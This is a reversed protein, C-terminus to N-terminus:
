TDLLPEVQRLALEPDESIVAALQEITHNGLLVELPLLLGQDQALQFVTIARLSNGGLEYFDERVGPETAGLVSAWIDSLLQEVPTRAPVHTVDPRLAPGAAALLSARDLKGNRSLPLEPLVVFTDPVHASPLRALLFARLEDIAPLEGPCCLYGVLHRDAPRDGTLTAAASTILPHAALSAEVAGLEIRQGGIKVQGDRRGLFELAGDSVWRAWDGTRYLRGGHCFPDPVFCLATLGPMNLYGRALQIGGIYLEGPVGVPVPEHHNDLVYARVGATPRGIPVRGRQREAPGVLGTTVSIATETPGYENKLTTHPWIGALRDALDPPLDEGGCTVRRLSAALAPAGPDGILVRVASPVMITLTVKERQMLRALYGQDHEGRPKAFVVRAGAALSSLWESGFMDFGIPSRALTVDAPGCPSIAQISMMRSAIAEHSVMVGKPMGTSGSTYLVYALNAPGATLAPRTDACEAILSDDDMPVLVPRAPASALRRNTILESSSLVVAPSGDELMLGLLSAPYEPDLPLYAGGAKLVAIMAVLARSSRPLCVGVIRDPGVGRSILYRAWKNTIADLEGYTMAESDTVIALSGPAVAAQREILEHVCMRPWSEAGAGSFGRLIREREEGRAIMLESIAADPQSAAGALVQLWGGVLGAADAEDWLEAAFVAQGALSGDFREFLLISLENNAHTIPIDFPEATLDPAQWGVEPINQLTFMVRALPWQGARRAAGAAEVIKEFPLDQHTYADLCIDRVERLLERFSFQDGVKIRLPLTNLFFGILPEIEARNRGAVPTGIVLDGQDCWRSLSIALAAVLVMFTTAQTAAAVERLGRALEGGIEVPICLARWRAQPQAARVPLGTPPAGSLQARWYRRSEDLAGDVQDRQWAAWDGYQVQLPALSADEGTIAARYFVALEPLMTGLSWGDAIIHHMTIALVWEREDLRIAAVRLLPGAALDFPADACLQVTSLAAARRQGAPRNRLDIESLPVPLHGHILQQLEGKLSFEFTTRLVEHRDALHDLADRLAAVRLLGRMRVAGCVNYASGAGLRDLLWLREQGFSAPLLYSVDDAPEASV